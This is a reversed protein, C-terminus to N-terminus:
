ETEPTVFALYKTSAKSLDSYIGRQFAYDEPINLALQYMAETIMQERVDRSLREGEPIHFKFPKGIVIKTRMRKFSKLRKGWNQNGCMVIPVLVADAKHAIYAVGSKAEGMGDPNRTGEPAIWVLQEDKLLAITNNLAVRDVEGRNIVFNGWIRLGLSEIPHNLTEAKAMSIVFRSSISATILIPDVVSIHNGILLTSGATPINELGEVDIKAILSLLRWYAPYLIARRKNLQRQEAIFQQTTSSM